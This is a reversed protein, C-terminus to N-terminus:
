KYKRKQKRLLSSVEKESKNQHNSVARYMDPLEYGMHEEMGELEEQQIMYM